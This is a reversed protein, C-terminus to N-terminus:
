RLNGGWEVVTFGDRPVSDLVQPLVTFPENLPEYYMFVRILTDPKPTINLPAVKNFDETGIFSVFYYPKSEEKMIPYWFEMFDEKEQTNLGLDHLSSELFYKLGISSVMFGRSVAIESAKHGEWFLYPYETGDELNVLDGDPSAMVNWGDEGHEPITVTLDVEEVKVLVEQTQEPYLYVVPKGCEAMPAYNIDYIGVWRGFPDQWYLASNSALYDEFSIGAEEYQDAVIGYFNSVQQREDSVGPNSADTESASLVRYFDVGSANSGVQALNAENVNDLITYCVRGAGCGGELYKYNEGIDVKEGNNFNLIRDSTPGDVFGSHYTYQAYLGDPTEVYFCGTEEGYNYVDGYAEDVYALTLNGMNKAQSHNLQELTLSENSDPISINEPMSAGRLVSLADKQTTLGEVVYPLYADTADDLYVLDGDLPNYVFRYMLVTFVPGDPDEVLTLYDYGAYKGKMIEGVKNFHTTDLVDQYTYYDPMLALVEAKRSELMKESDIAQPETFKVDGGEFANPVLRATGPKTIAEYKSEEENAESDKDDNESSVDEDNEEQNEDSDASEIDEVERLDQTDEDVQILEATSNRLDVVKQKVDEGCGVMVVLFCLISVLLYQKRLGKFNKM